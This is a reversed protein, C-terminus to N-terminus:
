NGVIESLPVRVGKKYATVFCGSVGREALKNRLTKAKGFTTFNGIAYVFLGQNNQSRIIAYGGESMQELEKLKKDSLPERFVGLQVRFVPNRRGAPSIKEGPEVMANAKNEVSSINIFPKKDELWRVRSISTKGGNYYGVIIADKFGKERLSLLAKSAEGYTRFLGAYFRILKKEPINEQMMPYMGKFFTIDPPKRFVGVQIRYNVGRPMVNKRPIDGVLHYVPATNMEFGFTYKGLIENRSTKKEESEKTIKISDVRKSNETKGVSSINKLNQRYLKEKEEPSIGPNNTTIVQYVPLVSSHAVDTEATAPVVGAFAAIAKRQNDLASLEYANAEMLKGYKNSYNIFKAAESRLALAKRYSKGAERYFSRGQYKRVSDMSPLNEFSTIYKKNVAYEGDNAKQFYDLASLRKSKMEEKLNDIKRQARRRAGKGTSASIVMQQHGINRKDKWAEKMFQNGKKNLSRDDELLIRDEPSFIKRFDPLEYFDDGTLELFPSIKKGPLQGNPPLIKTEEKGTMINERTTVPKINGTEEYNRALAFYKEAEEQYSVAQRNLAAIDKRLHIRDNDEASKLERDYQLVLIRVSDAKHQYGLARDTVVQYPDPKGATSIVGFKQKEGPNNMYMYCQTIWKDAHYAKEEGQNTQDRFRTFYHIAEEYRNAQYCAKGLYFLVNGPVEKKLSALKLRYVAQEPEQNLATLCVGAYYNYRPDKPFSGLLQRYGELAKLYNGKEFNAYSETEISLPGNEQANLSSVPFLWLTLFMMFFVSSGTKKIIGNFILIKMKM